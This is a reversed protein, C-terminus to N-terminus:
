IVYVYGVAPKLVAFRFPHAGLKDGKLPVRRLVPENHPVNFINGVFFGGLFLKGFGQEM